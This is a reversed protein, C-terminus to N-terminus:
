AQAEPQSLLRARYRATNASVCAKCNVRGSRRSIFTSTATLLHGNGCRGEKRRRGQKMPAGTLARELDWGYRSYRSWATRLNVLAGSAKWASVFAMRRGRFEVRLTTRKNLAQESRSIWRCNMPDYRGNVDNREITLGKAYDWAMDAFFAPYEKWRDCVVIGRGGYDKFHTAKPNECRAVM